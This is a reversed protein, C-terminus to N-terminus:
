ASVNKLIPNQKQTYAVQNNNYEVIQNDIYEAEEQAAPSIDFTMKQNRYM